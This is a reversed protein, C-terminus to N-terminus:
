EGARDGGACDSGDSKDSPRRDEGGGGSCNVSVELVGEEREREGRMGKMRCRLLSALFSAAAATGEVTDDGNSRDWDRETGREGGAAPRSTTSAAALSDRAMAAENWIM